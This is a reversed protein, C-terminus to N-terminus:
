VTIIDYLWTELKKNAKRRAETIKYLENRLSPYNFFSFTVHGM